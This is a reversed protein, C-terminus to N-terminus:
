RSRARGPGPQKHRPAEGICVRHKVREQRATPTTLQGVCQKLM